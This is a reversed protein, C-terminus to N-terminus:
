AQVQEDPDLYTSRELYDVPATLQYDDAIGLAVRRRWQDEQKRVLFGAERLATLHRKVTKEDVRCVRALRAVGPHASGGAKNSYQALTYGIAKTALPLDARRVLREWEMRGVPTPADTDTM